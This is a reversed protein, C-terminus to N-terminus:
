AEELGSSFKNIVDEMDLHEVSWNLADMESLEVCTCEKTAGREKTLYYRGLKKTRYLTVTIMDYLLLMTGGIFESQETDYIYKGIIYKM